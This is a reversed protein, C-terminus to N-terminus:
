NVRFSLIVKIGYEVGGCYIEVLFWKEIFIFFFWKWLSGGGSGVDISVREVKKKIM